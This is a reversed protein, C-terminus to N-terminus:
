EDGDFNLDNTVSEGEACFGNKSDYIFQPEGSFGLCSAQKKFDEFDSDKLTTERGLLYLCRLNVEEEAVAINLKLQKLMTDMNQVTTNMSLVLCGDCSPLLHFTSSFFNKVSVSATDSEITINATTTMCVGNLKDDHVLVVGTPDSPSPSINCWSSEMQKLMAGFVASTSYGVLFHSRNYMMSPDALSLPTMLPQCEEPTLAWSGLFLGSVLLLGRLCM